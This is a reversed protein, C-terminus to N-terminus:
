FIFDILRTDIIISDTRDVKNIAVTVTVTV